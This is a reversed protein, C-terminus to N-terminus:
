DVIPSMKENKIVTRKNKKIVTTKNKSLHLEDKAVTFPTWYMEIYMCRAGPISTNDHMHGEM